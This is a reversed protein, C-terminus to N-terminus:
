KELKQIIEDSIKGGVFKITEILEKIINRYEDTLDKLFEVEKRQFINETELHSIHSLVDIHDILVRGDKEEVLHKM